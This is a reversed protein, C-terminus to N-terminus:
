YPHTVVFKIRRVIGWNPVEEAKIQLAQASSLVALVVSDTNDNPCGAIKICTDMRNYSSLFDDVQNKDLYERRQNVPCKARIKNYTADVLNAYKTAAATTQDATSNADHLTIWSLLFNASVGNIYQGLAEVCDDSHKVFDSVQTGAVGFFFGV